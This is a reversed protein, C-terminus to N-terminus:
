SQKFKISKKSAINVPAGTAPNRGIRDKSVNLKFTGFKPLFVKGEELVANGLTKLFANVIKETVIQTEEVQKAVEKILDAKTM